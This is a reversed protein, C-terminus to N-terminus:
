KEHFMHMLEFLWRFPGTLPKLPYGTPNPQNYGNRGTHTAVARKFPMHSCSEIIVAKGSQSEARRTPDHAESQNADM